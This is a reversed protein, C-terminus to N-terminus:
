PSNDDAFSEGLQSDLGSSVQHHADRPHPLGLVRLLPRLRRLDPPQARWARVGAAEEGGPLVLARVLANLLRNRPGDFPLLPHSVPLLSSSSAAPPEPHLLVVGRTEEIRPNGSSFPLSDLASASSSASGSPDEGGSTAMAPAAAAAAAALPLSFRERGKGLSANGGRSSDLTTKHRTFKMLDRKITLYM